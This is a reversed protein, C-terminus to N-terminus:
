QLCSMIHQFNKEKFVTIPELSRWTTSVPSFRLGKPIVSIQLTVASSSRAAARHGRHINSTRVTIADGMSCHTRGRTHIQTQFLWQVECVPHSKSVESISFHHLNQIFQFTLHPSLKMEYQSRGEMATVKVHKPHLGDLCHGRNM